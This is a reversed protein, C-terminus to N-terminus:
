DDLPDWPRRVGSGPLEAKRAATEPRLRSQPTLRLARALSAVLRVARDATATMKAYRDVGGEAKLWDAEFADVARGAFRARTVAKAYEALLPHTEKPFWSAPLRDVTARWVEEQEPTLDPGPQPRAETIGVVVSLDGASKRGRKM